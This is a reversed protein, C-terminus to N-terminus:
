ANHSHLKLGMWNFFVFFLLIPPLMPLIYCYHNDDRIARLIKGQAWHEPLIKSIVLAYMSLSFYVATAAFLYRSVAIRDHAM